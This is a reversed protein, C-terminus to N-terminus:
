SETVLRMNFLGNPSDGIRKCRYGLAIAAAIFAGNSVYYDVGPKDLREREVEHKLGYSNTRPNLKEQPAAHRRLWRKCVSIERRDPPTRDCKQSCLGFGYLYAGDILKPKREHKTM